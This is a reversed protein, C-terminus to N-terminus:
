ADPTSEGTCNARHVRYYVRNLSTIYIVDMATLEALHVFSGMLPIVM